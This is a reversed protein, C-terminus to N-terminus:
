KNGKLPTYMIHGDHDTSVQGKYNFISSIGANTLVKLGKSYIGHTTYLGVDDAGQEYLLSAAGIFTAGGDTIDDVMLVKKDKCYGSLVMNKISGTTEDRIKLCYLIPLGQVMHAYRKLSSADPFCVADPKWKEIVDRVYNTAEINKFNIPYPYTPNHVDLAMIQNIELGKLMQLFTKLAFTTNNSIYKDQRAYPLFPMFLDIRNILYGKLLMMLQAVQMLEGESQFDWQIEVRTRGSLEKLLDNPLNWIQSTGDPFLTPKVITDNLKIM